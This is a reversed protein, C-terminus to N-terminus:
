SKKTGTGGAHLWHLVDCAACKGLDFWGGVLFACATWRKSFIAAWWSGKAKSACLLGQCLTGAHFSPGFTESQFDWSLLLSRLINLDGMHFLYIYLTQIQRTHPLRARERGKRLRWLGFSICFCHLCLCLEAIKTRLCSSCQTAMVMVPFM